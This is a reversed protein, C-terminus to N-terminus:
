RKTLQQYDVESDTQMCYRVIVARSTHDRSHGFAMPKGPKGWPDNREDSCGLGDLLEAASRLPMWKRSSCGLGCCAATPMSGYPPTGELMPRSDRVRADYQSGRAAPPHVTPVACLRGGNPVFGVTAGKPRPEHGQRHLGSREASPQPSSGRTLEEVQKVMWALHIPDFEFPGVLLMNFFTTFLVSLAGVCSSMM